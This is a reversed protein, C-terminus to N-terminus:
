AMVKLCVFGEKSHLEEETNDRIHMSREEYRRRITFRATSRELTILDGDCM